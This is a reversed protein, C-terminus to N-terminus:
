GGGDVAQLRRCSVLLVLNTSNSHSEKVIRTKSINKRLRIRVIFDLELV